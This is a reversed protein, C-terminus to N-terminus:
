GSSRTPVSFTAACRTPRDPALTRDAGASPRGARPPDGRRHRGPRRRHDAARSACASRFIGPSPRRVIPSAPKACCSSGSPAPSPAPSRSRATRRPRDPALRGAPGAAPVRLLPHFAPAPRRHVLRERRAIAAMAPLRGGPRRDPPPHVALLHHLRVASAPRLRVRRRHPLRNSRGSRHGRVRRPHELPQPRDGRASRLSSPPSHSPPRRRPRLRHGARFITADNGAYRALWRLMPRHTFTVVNVRSLDRLCRRYEEFDTSATDM